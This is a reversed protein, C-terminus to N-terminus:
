LEKRAQNGWGESFSFEEAGYDKGMTVIPAKEGESYAQKATIVFQHGPFTNMSAVRGAQIEGLPVAQSDHGIWHYWVSETGDNKFIAVKQQPKPRASLEDEPDKETEMVGQSGDRPKNWVWFNAAWKEGALVPCASHLGHQDTNGNPQLSYWLIVAGRQPQVKLGHDCSYMDHPQPLGGARPFLTQGGDTVNTLYWFVTALRNRHGWDFWDGDSYQGPDWNDLHGAYYQGLEYNLIQVEENHSKPVQTLLEVRSNLKHLLPTGGAPARAQSSTRFDKAPRGKDKDMLSVPSKELNSKGTAIIEDCESDKLFGQVQFLLPQVSLTKLEM